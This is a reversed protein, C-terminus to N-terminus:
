FFLQSAMYYPLDYKSVTHERWRWSLITDGWTTQSVSMEFSGEAEMKLSSSHSMYSQYITVITGSSVKTEM